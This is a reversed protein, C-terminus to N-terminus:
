NIVELSSKLAVHSPEFMIIKVNNNFVHIYRERINIIYYLNEFHSFIMKILNSNDESGRQIQEYIM